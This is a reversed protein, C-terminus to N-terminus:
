SAQEKAPFLFVEKGGLPPFYEHIARIHILQEIEQDGYGLERLIEKSHAGLRPATALRKWSRDEGIRVYDPAPITVSHGCPHDPWCLFETGAGAVEDAAANDVQRVGAKNLLDAATLVAHSGIDADALKNLWYQRDQGAFAAELASENALNNGTIVEALESARAETTGVYIWGDKCGYLRQWWSEGLALQGRAEGWDSNGDEDIMWPLQVYNAVM